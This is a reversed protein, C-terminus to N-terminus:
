SEPTVTFAVAEIPKAWPTPANPQPQPRDPRSDWRQRDEASRWTTVTTIQCPDNQAILTQRSVFGPYSRMLRGNEKIMAETQKLLEPVIYHHVIATIM